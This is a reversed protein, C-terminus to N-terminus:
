AGHKNPCTGKAFSPVKATRFNKFLLDGFLTLVIIVKPTVRNGKFPTRPTFPTRARVRGKERLVGKLPFRITKKHKTTVRM